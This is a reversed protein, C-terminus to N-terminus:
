QVTQRSRFGPAALFVLFEAALFNLLGALPIAVLNATLYHFGAQEVLCGVVLVNVALALLGTSLHFRLARALIAARSM